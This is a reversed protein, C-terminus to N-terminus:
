GVPPQDVVKPFNQNTIRRAWEEVLCKKGFNNLHLGHASYCNRELREIQFNIQLNKSIKNGCTNVVKHIENNAYQIAPNLNVKDHRFPIPNLIVNTVKSAAVVRRIPQELNFAGDSFLNETDNTGGLVILTDSTSLDKTCTEVSSVVNGLSAGPKVISTVQYGDGLKMQLMAACKRGHSDALLLVNKKRETKPKTKKPITPKPQSPQSKPRTSINGRLPTSSKPVYSPWDNSLDVTNLVDYRNQHTFARSVQGTSHRRTRRQPVTNWSSSAFPNVDKTQTSSPLKMLIDELRMIQDAMDHLRQRLINNEEALHENAKCDCMCKALGLCNIEMDKASYDEFILEKSLNKVEKEYKDENEMLNEM